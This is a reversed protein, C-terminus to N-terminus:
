KFQTKQFWNENFSLGIRITNYQEQVLGAAKTGTQKYEYAINIRSGGRMPLTLGATIGKSDINNGQLSLYEQNYFAGIRYHIRKLYSRHHRTPTFQLGVGGGYTDRVEGQRIPVESKSWDCYNWDAALTWGKFTEYSVGAQYTLPIMYNDINKTTSSLDSSQNNYIRQKYYTDLETSMNVTAGMAIKNAGIKQHWQLGYEFLLTSVHYNRENFTTQGILSPYYSVEIIDSSGWLYSASLGLSLGKAIEIGNHWAIQTIGGKGLYQVPYKDITGLIYKESNITYGISSYPSISFGMGWNNGARFGISVSEINADFNTQNSSNTSYNAFSARGQINFIFRASDLASYSAANLNNLYGSSGLAVGTHGMGASTADAKSEIIGIGYRSYSSSTNNQGYVAATFIGLIFFLTLKNLIM